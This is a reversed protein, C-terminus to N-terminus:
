YGPVHVGLEGGECVVGCALSEVRRGRNGWCWGLVEGREVILISKWGVKVTNVRVPM